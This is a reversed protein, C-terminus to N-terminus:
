NNNYGNTKVGKITYGNKEYLAWLSKPSQKEFASTTKNFQIESKHSQKNELTVYARKFLWEYQAQKDKIVLLNNANFPEGRLNGIYVVLIDFKTLYHRLERDFTVLSDIKHAKDCTFSAKNEFFAKFQYKVGNEDIADVGNDNSGGSFKFGMKEAMLREFAKCYARTKIPENFNSSYVLGNKIYNNITAM